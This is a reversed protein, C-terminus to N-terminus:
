FVPHWALVHGRRDGAPLQMSLSSHMAHLQHLMGPQALSPWSWGWWGQRPSLARSSGNGCCQGGGADGM